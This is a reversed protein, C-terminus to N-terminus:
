QVNDNNNDNNNISNNIDNLNEEEDPTQFPPPANGKINIM